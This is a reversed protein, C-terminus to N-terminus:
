GLVRGRLWEFEARLTLAAWAVPVTMKRWGRTRHKRYYRLMSASHMRIIRRSRGTSV